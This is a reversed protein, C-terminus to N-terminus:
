VSTVGEIAHANTPRGMVASLDLSVAKTECKCIKPHGETEVLVLCSTCFYVVKGAAPLQGALALYAIEQLITREQM